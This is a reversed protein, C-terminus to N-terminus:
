HAAAGMATDHASARRRANRRRPAEYEMIEALRVRARSVRSKITGIACGCSAAAEEYTLGSATVMLLAERNEFPLQDLSAKIEQLCVIDPRETVLWHLLEGQRARIGNVNWTAIKM